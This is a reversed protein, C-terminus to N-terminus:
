QVCAGYLNFRLDDFNFTAPNGSQIEVGYIFTNSGVIASLPITVLKWQYSNLTGGEVYLPNLINVYQIAQYSSNLLGVYLVESESQGVNVWFSISDYGATNFRYNAWSTFQVRGWQTTTKVEVSNDGHYAAPSTPNSTVGTWNELFWGSGSVDLFVNASSQAFGSPATTTVSGTGFKTGDQVSTARISATAPSPLTSPAIYLGSANVSGGGATLAWNVSQSPSGTGNVTASCQATQNVQVSTPACSVTVGTVTPAAVTVPTVTTNGYKTADAASTVRIVSTTASSPATYVGAGSISGGGSVISWFGQTSFNGTGYVVGSCQTTQNVSISSPACSATVSTITPFTYAILYDQVTWGQPGGTWNILWWVYGNAFYPGGAIIGTAGISKTALLTGTTSASARTNTNGTVVQIGGGNVFPKATPTNLVMYTDVSWGQSGTDWIINWWMFGNAVTPGANVTGVSGLPKTTILTGTTSATARVNLNDTAKIADSVAIAFVSSSVAMLLLFIGAVLWRPVCKM